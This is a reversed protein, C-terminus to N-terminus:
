SESIESIARMGGFSFEIYAHAIEGDRPWSSRRDCYFEQEEDQVFLIMKDSGQRVVGQLRKPGGGNNMLMARPRWLAGPPLRMKKVIEFQNIAEAWRRQLSLSMALLLRYFPNGKRDDSQLSETSLRQLLAWDISAGGSSTANLVNRKIMWQYYINLQVESLRHSVSVGSNVVIAKKDLCYDYAKKFSRGKGSDIAIQLMRRSVVVFGDQCQSSNWVNMAEADLDHVDVIADFLRMRADELMSVDGGVEPLLPNKAIMLGIDIDAIANSALTMIDVVQSRDIKSLLKVALNAGVHIANTNFFGSSKAKSLYDAVQQKGENADIQGKDLRALATAALSTYIHEDAETRDSYPYDQTHLADELISAALALDSGKNKIWLGKHHKLTRDPFPLSDIAADFLSLGEIYELRNIKDHPVLLRVCFERYVINTKGKCAEILSKLIRLEGSKSFSGGNIAEILITTVFENRTRYLVGEDGIEESYLIGWAIASSKTADLWSSYDVDLASVLVEVPLPVRYSDAVAVMEYARRLLESTHATSGLLVKKLGVFDGLRLYEDRISSEISQRTKPLLWYLSSLIDRAMRNPVRACRNNADNLDSSVGLSVLYSPLDTWESEDLADPITSHSYVPIGTLLDLGGAAEWDTLRVGTLILTRVGMESAATMINKPQVNGMALLDDLVFVLRKQRYTPTRAVEEFLYRLQRTPDPMFCPLGWLVLHGQQALNIAMRKLTTTRGSAASGVLAYCVDHKPHLQCISEIDAALSETFSRKFDMNYVFPDWKPISPAFLIDLLLLHEEQKARPTLQYNVITVLDDFRQLSAIPDIQEDSLLLSPVYRQKEAKSLSRTLENTSGNFKHARIRQSLMEEIKSNNVLPDDGLFVINSPASATDALMEGLLDLFVFEVEAMGICICPNGKVFSSFLPIARRWNGRSRVYETSTMPVDDRTGVGLLKLVPITRPPLPERFDSLVTVPRRSPRKEQEESMKTEFHMDPTASLVAAWRIKALQSILPSPQFKSIAGRITRRINAKDKGQAIASEAVALYNGNIDIAFTSRLEDAISSLCGSHCTAAPGLILGAHGTLLGDLQDLLIDRM